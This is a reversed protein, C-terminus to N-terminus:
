DQSELLISSLRRGAMQLFAQREKANAVLNSDLTLYGLKEELIPILINSFERILNSREASGGLGSVIGPTQGRLRNVSGSRLFSSTLVPDSKSALSGNTSISTFFDLHRVLLVLILEIADLKSTIASRLTGRRNKLERMAISRRQAPGLDAPVEEANLADRAIEDWEDMRVGDVNNLLGLTADLGQLDKSLGVAQEDLTAALAGLGPVAVTRSSAGLTRSFDGEDRDDFPTKSRERPINLSPALVPKISSDARGRSDSAAELYALLSIQLRSVLSVVRSDFASEEEGAGEGAWRMARGVHSPRRAEERESENHPLVRSKWTASHLYPSALALVATHYAAMPNPPLLADDDLTPLVLVLLSVLLHSQELQDISTTELTPAKLVSLFTERHASLLGLAQRPAAHSSLPSVAKSTGYTQKAGSTTSALIGVSLQLVPTLLSYYRETAAPLFTDLDVFDQDQEPRAAIFDAQSLIDFVRADLLREAGERSQTIRNFFSLKAEYVYLANLSEPDPRLTEQLPEDMDRISSVFSKLYGRRELLDLSKSGTGLVSRSGTSSPSELACLKDLLTFAVTKWLDSADLADRAITDMLRESNALLLARTRTELPSQSSRSSGGIVSSLGGLSVTDDIETGAVSLDDGGVFHDEGRPTAQVLQLYNILASYLNGRALPTTGIRLISEVLARLTAVLRDVPLLDASDLEFAGATVDARHQRLATLLSLVAGAVLDALAPDSDAEQTPAALRPLLAALCDFMLSARTDLRLLNTARALVMDLTHRWAQLAKRRSHAIARRANQASAWHLVFAAQTMFPDGSGADRLKGQQQLSAKQKVLIALVAKLDYVRSGFDADPRKASNLDDPHIITINEGVSDREDHWVFDLSHLLELFRIGAQEFGVEGESQPIFGIDATDDGDIEVFAGVSSSSGFLAAVLRAARTQIGASILTHLELAVLDLLHARLRLSAVLADVTTPLTQGDPFRVLGLSASSSTAAAREAPIIPLKRLQVVLFDERTRLYRLTAASTFPHTCLKLILAYCKEALGPSREALSLYTGPNIGEEPRLLALIAHLASPSTEASDPDPIVQEEPRVARLDFGLLLHALNPAAQDLTTSSLLLNLIAIRIAEVADSAPAVLGDIESSNQGEAEDDEGALALVAQIASETPDSDPSPETELRAVYGAKVREAEDSMELVGVLRNMKRRYGMEGFRDVASFASSKAILSLLRVSLLAIDDRDCNIYLAIQVVSEHAHLLFTDLSNYSGPNGVKSSADFPLITGMTPAEVLTPILVQLFVNQIRLVRQIIRLSHRVSSAFFITKARRSNVAEFGAGGGGPNLVALIERVLKTGTLLRKMVSFGPHSVLKTLVAPDSVAENGSEDVSLLSSIDYSYLCRELFDLCSAAVRWREAPNSYERGSAKLFVHDIVFSLYPEASRFQPSQLQSQGRLAVMSGFPDSAAAGSLPQTVLLGATDRPQPPVRILAKVFNVFSTSGPYYRNPAEVNELEYLVGGSEGSPRGFAGIVPKSGQADVGDIVKSAELRSWLESTISPGKSSATSHRAFAALTDLIAAKLEVPIPCTYLGFLRDLASYSSNQHLSDRATSSYYVVNRLLRFFGRLLVVEDPPMGVSGRGGNAQSNRFTEIYYNVWEFLRTWSILRGDSSASSSELDLLSYARSASQTGSALAALMDLLARQHGPERVDIAWALFRTTRKDPGIWFPLGAEPRGRCLLAVLDFLAEIDYRREQPAAGPRGAVGRSIAFAADEEARQLKRILPLMVTTVSQVLSQVQQLVYERFEADVEDDSTTGSGVVPESEGVDDDEGDLADLTKQRFSLVRLILFVFADGKPSSASVPLTQGKSSSGAISGLVLDQIQEEGLSMQVRFGPNRQLAEVLFVSWQLSVVSNLEPLAWAKKTIESHLTTIFSQDDMLVDVSFKNSGRSAREALAAQVGASTDISALLATLVYITMEDMQESKIASLTRIVITISAPSLMSSVSLLYLIHGLERREQQMWALRELQIEDSLKNANPGAASQASGGIGPFGGQAQGGNGASRLSSQAKSASEKVADIELLVREPLSVKRAGSAVEMVLLAEVLQEMKSGLRQAEVNAEFPLTLAGRILEKLCALLALRERYFLICAVESATRGWRARGAIGAQLLSAAYKESVALERSLLLTQQAFDPNLPQSVGDITISGAQIEKREAENPGKVKGLDVLESRNRDVAIYWDNSRSYRAPNQSAELILRHLKEFRNPLFSSTAM